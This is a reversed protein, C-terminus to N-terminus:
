QTTNQIKSISIRDHIRNLQISNSWKANCLFQNNHYQVVVHYRFGHIRNCRFTMGILVFESNTKKKMREEKKQKVVYFQNQDFDM